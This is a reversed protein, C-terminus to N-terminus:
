VGFTRSIQELTGPTLLSIHGVWYPNIKHVANMSIYQKSAGEGGTVMVSMYNQLLLTTVIMTNYYLNTGSAV